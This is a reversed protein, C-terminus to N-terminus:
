GGSGHSDPDPPASGVGGGPDDAPVIPEATNTTENSEGSSGPQEDNGEEQENQSEDKPGTEDAM